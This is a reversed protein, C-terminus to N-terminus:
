AVSSRNRAPLADARRYLREIVRAPALQGVFYSRANKELHRRYEVDRRLLALAESAAEETEEVLHVHTGHVLPEPLARRPPTALIAKGLALSEAFRWTLCDHVGPAIFAVLSARTRELWEDIAYRRPALRQEVQETPAEFGHRFPAFGGEFELGEAAMCARVFNLRLRNCEPAERWLSSVFFVYDSRSVGPAYASLPARYQYQRRWPKLHQALEFDPARCRLWTALAQRAAAAPSWFRIPISPGLAVIKPAREPAVAGDLPNVKGYLDCWALCPASIEPGDRADICVRLGVEDDIFCL